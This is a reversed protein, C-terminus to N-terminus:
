RQATDPVGADADPLPRGLSSFSGQFMISLPPIAGISLTSERRENIDSVKPTNSFVYANLKFQRGFPTLEPFVTHCAECALGTQRALGPVAQSPTATLLLFGAAAGATVFVTCLNRISACRM